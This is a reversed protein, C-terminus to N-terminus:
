RGLFWRDEPWTECVKRRSCGLWGRMELFREYVVLPGKARIRFLGSGHVAIRGTEAVKAAADVLTM